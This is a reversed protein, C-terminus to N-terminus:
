ELPVAIVTDGSAVIVKRAERHVVASRGIGGGRPGNVPWASVHRRMDVAKLWRRDDVTGYVYKEGVIPASYFEPLLSPNKEEWVLKGSGADVAVFGRAGEAAYVVGDRLVPLGYHRSENYGSGLERGEGFRWSTEGDKLRLAVLEDAGLFVHTRSLALQGRPIKEATSNADPAFKRDWLEKGTRIDRVSARDAKVMLLYPGSVAAVTADPGDSPLATPIPRRWKEKGSQLDIRVVHFGKKVDEEDQTRTTLFLSDGTAALLVVTSGDLDASRIRTTGFNGTRLDIDAIELDTAVTNPLTWLRKGDTTFAYGYADPGVTWLKKGTKANLGVLGQETFVAAVNGVTRPASVDQIGAVDQKWSLEPPVNAPRASEGSSGATDRSSSDKSTWARVGYGAGVLAAAGAGSLTLLKRRSTSPSSPAETGDHGDDPAPLRHPSLEWVEACRRAIDSLVPAPLCDAFQIEPSDDLLQAALQATGPRQEPAKALCQELIPRLAPPLDSLDPEAYRVRYLLDAAQGGGFPGHGTAAFVLVGALAFVDGAPTHEEGTAQEPSMFAPTGAAAGTQTLKDDGIARAIGFDIVKPGFATLLINSPKLDRHVVDSRHLQGLAECLMAGLVRVCQEPLPGCLAVADDMPPGLVYETALWPTDSLPDADFVEAGHREGIVRAADVELRFRTRFETEAAIRPHMTKLAVTRGGPSRGLYVTGMGGSGLRAVLGYPGLRQPDDHTLSFPM